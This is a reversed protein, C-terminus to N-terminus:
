GPRAALGLFSGYRQAATYIAQEEEVMLPRFPNLEILVEKKKLTRRWSGAIQGDILFFYYLPNGLGTLEAEYLRGGIPAHDKYGSVMEDYISLLDVRPSTIKNPSADPFVYVQGEVEEVQFEQKVAEFGRRCDTLTLGSWKAFDQVTAPGHSYLYRRTLEVLADDPERAPTAPVREDLLMYSFQKGLRPGSCIVGELEAHMLLYVMRQEYKTPIGVRELVARLDDRTLQKGGQLAKVMERESLAFTAADLEMKRYMHANATHVRPATLALLWRIDAPTIFHWTPRLLHTRLIRGDTFAQEVQEDNFGSVRLGLAWKAGAFDQSQVAILWNVVAEPSELPSSALHQNHLRHLPIDTLHM